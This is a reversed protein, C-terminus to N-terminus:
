VSPKIVRGTQGALFVEGLATITGHVDEGLIAINVFTVPERVSVYGLTMGEYYVM